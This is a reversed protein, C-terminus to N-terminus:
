LFSRPWSGRVRVVNVEAALVTLQGGVYLWTLLGFVVALVGTVDSSHNLHVVLASGLNQLALWLVAAILAGPLVERLTCQRSPLLVFAILFLALNVALSAVLLAVSTIAGGLSGAAILASLGVSVINAVGLAGLMALGHLQRRFFNYRRDTPVDWVRDFATQGARTAALGALLSFVAGLALKLTSGSPTVINNHVFEEVGPFQAYSSDLIQDRLSANDHLVFGLVTTLVILLPVLSFFAYYAILAALQGANDDGFKKFVAVPFALVRHRQQFLDLAHIRRVLAARMHERAHHTPRVTNRADIQANCADLAATRRASLNARM